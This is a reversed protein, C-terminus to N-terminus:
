KVHTWTRGLLVARVTEANVGYHRAISGMSAGRTRLFRIRRVKNVNLKAHAHRAGHQHRGKAIMDIANAQPTGLFLHEPNVCGTVDCRHCVDLGDPIESVYLVFSVRHALFRVNRGNVRKAIIGYGRPLCHGTWRWCDDPLKGRDIRALFREEM